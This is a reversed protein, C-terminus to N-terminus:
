ILHQNHISVNKILKDMNLQRTDFAPLYILDPLICILIFMHKKKEVFSFMNKDIVHAIKPLAVHVGSFVPPSSLHKPLTLM